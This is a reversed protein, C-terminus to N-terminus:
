YKAVNVILKKEDEKEKRRKNAMKRVRNIENGASLLKCRRRRIRRSALIGNRQLITSSVSPFSFSVAMCTIEIKKSVFFRFMSFNDKYKQFLFVIFHQTNIKNQRQSNYAGTECM